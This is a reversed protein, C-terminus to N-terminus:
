RGSAQPLAYGSSFSPASSGSYYAIVALPAILTLMAIAVGIM